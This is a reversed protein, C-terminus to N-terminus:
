KVCILLLILRNRHGRPRFHPGATARKNPIGTRIGDSACIDTEQSHQANQLCLSRGRASGEDLPTKGITHKWTHLWTSCYIQVGVTLLYFHTLSCFNYIKKVVLKWSSRNYLSKSFPSSPFSTTTAQRVSGCLSIVCSILGKVGLSGCLPRVACRVELCEMKYM